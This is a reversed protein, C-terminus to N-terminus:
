LTEEITEEFNKIMDPRHKKIYLKIEEIDSDSYVTTNIMDFIITLTAKDDFRDTNQIILKISLLRGCEDPHIVHAM